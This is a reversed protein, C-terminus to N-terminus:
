RYPNYVSLFSWRQQRSWSWRWWCWSWSYSRATIKRSPLTLFPPATPGPERKTLPGLHWRAPPGLKEKQKKQVLTQVLTPGPPIIVFWSIFFSFSKMLGPSLQVLIYNISVIVVYRVEWKLGTRWWVRYPHCWLPQDLTANYENTTSKRLCRLFIQFTYFAPCDGKVHRGLLDECLVADRHRHICNAEKLHSKCACSKKQGPIPAWPM